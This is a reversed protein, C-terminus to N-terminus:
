YEVEVLCLGHPPATKGARSRDRAELTELVDARPRKGLGIEVLTGVITRVMSRLFANARITLIVHEGDRRVELERVERVPRGDEDRDASAFSTFDHVGILCQAAENMADVDLPLRVHWCFRGQLASRTDRNLIDYRYLRSKASYRAHFSHEMETAELAAISRPLLSNMAICLKEVPISGGTRFNVVQGAAHVGADTRGSGYVTVNEKVIRSLVRELEGQITPVGPQYQFGFFDTGDYEVVVRINRM